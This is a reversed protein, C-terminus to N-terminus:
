IEIFFLALKGTDVVPNPNVRPLSVVREPARGGM